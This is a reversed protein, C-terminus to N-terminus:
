RWRVLTGGGDTTLQQVGKGGTQTDAQYLNGDQLVVVWRGDASWAMQPNTVGRDGTAPFIRVKNSGDVDMIFIDYQGDASQQPNHAQGYAIRDQRSWAANSLMGAAPALPAAFAGGPQIAWVDFTEAREPDTTGPPPAHLTALILRGDPSWTVDPTWVWGARTQYVPLAQLVTRVGSPVDVLGIEDASAYVVRRRDPSLAWTVGWYGYAFGTMPPLLLKRTKSITDYLWLDNHAKWGPAGVTREGSSFIIQTGTIWEAFLVNDLGLPAAAEGLIRTDVTWLSNLPGVAGVAGGVTAGRTFLLRGGDPAVAFVRGDLDGSFTLPRKAGSFDRMIWANANSAYFLTGTVPVSTLTGKAGVLVIEERPIVTAAQSVLDRSIEVGNEFIAKYRLEETGNVGLQLVRSIGDSLAEDRLVTRRFPLLRTEVETEERVRTVIIRASREAPEVLDPSVRDLPGLQVRAELLADAVTVAQTQRQIQKGDVEIVVYKEVPRPACAFLWAFICALLLGSLAGRARRLSM